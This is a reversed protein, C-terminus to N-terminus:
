AAGASIIEASLQQQAAALQFEGIAADIAARDDGYLKELTSSEL